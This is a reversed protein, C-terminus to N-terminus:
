LIQHLYLRGHATNLVVDHLRLSTSTYRWANKVEASSPFSHDADRESPKIEFFSGGNGMQYSAPHAVRGTQICHRVSYIGAGVPFRVGTTWSTAYDGCQSFEKWM